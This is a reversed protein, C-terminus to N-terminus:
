VSRTLQDVAAYAKVAANNGSAAQKAAREAALQLDFAQQELASIRGDENADAPPYSKTSTALGPRPPNIGDNPPPVLGATETRGQADAPNIGASGTASGATVAAGNAGPGPAAASSSNPAATANPAANSSANAGSPSAAPQLAPTAAAGSAGADAARNAVSARQVAQPSIKVVVAPVEGSALARNRGRGPQQALPASIPEAGLRETVASPAATASTIPTIPPPM